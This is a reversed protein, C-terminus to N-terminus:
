LVPEKAARVFDEFASRLEAESFEAADWVVMKTLVPRTLAETAPDDSYFSLNLHFEAKM